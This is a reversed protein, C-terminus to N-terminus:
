QKLNSMKGSTKHITGWQTGYITFPEENKGGISHLNGWQATNATFPEENHRNDIFFAGNHEMQQSPNWMTVWKSHLTGWQSKNATFPEESYAIQQFPNRM